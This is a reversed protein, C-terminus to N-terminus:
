WAVMILFESSPSMPSLMYKYELGSNIVAMYYFCVTPDYFSFVSASFDIGPKRTDRGRRLPYVHTHNKRPCSVTCYYTYSRGLSGLLSETGMTNVPTHDCLVRQRAM